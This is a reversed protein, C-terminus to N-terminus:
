PLAAGRQEISGSDEYYKAVPTVIATRGTGVQQTVNAPNAPGDDPEVRLLRISPTCSVARYRLVSASHIGEELAVIQVFKRAIEAV